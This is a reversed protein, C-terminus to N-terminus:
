SASRLVKGTNFDRIESAGDQSGLDGPVIVDILNGFYSRIRLATKAPHKGSPNASTSVLATGSLRCLETVVPHSSVRVALTDRGGTVWDPAFGGHPLLWTIPQESKVLDSECPLESVFNSLRAVSDTIVILGKHMERQKLSLIRLVAHPNAPDCGLGWVGETPYAIVGGGCVSNSGSRIGQSYM